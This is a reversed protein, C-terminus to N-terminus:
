NPCDKAPHDPKGCKYCAHCFSCYGAKPGKTVAQKEGLCSEGQNWKSCYSKKGSKKGFRVAAGECVTVAGDCNDGAPKPPKRKKGDKDGEGEEGGLESLQKPAGGGRTVKACAETFHTGWLGFTIFNGVNYVKPERDMKDLLVQALEVAQKPGGVSAMNKAITDFFVEWLDPDGMGGIRRVCRVYIDFAKMMHVESKVVATNQKLKVLFKSEDPDFVTEHAEQFTFAKQEVVGKVIAQLLAVRPHEKELKELLSKPEDKKSATESYLKCSEKANQVFGQEYEDKARYYLEDTLYAFIEARAEPFRKYINILMPCHTKPDTASAIWGANGNDYLTTANVTARVLPDSTNQGTLSDLLTASIGGPIQVNFQALAANSYGDQQRICLIPAIDCDEKPDPCNLRFCGPCPGPAM